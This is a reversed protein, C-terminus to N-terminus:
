FIELDPQSQPAAKPELDEKIFGIVAQIDAYGPTSDGWTAANKEIHPLAGKAKELLSVQKGRITVKRDKVQGADIYGKLETHIAPLEAPNEIQKKATKPDPKDDGRAWLALKEGIDESLQVDKGEFIHRFQEPLKMMMKEGKNDSQWTPRGDAHPLLLMNITMEFVFEDGAIPVFGFNEIETKGNKKVPRSSEKARFCFIFNANMQLLGNILKRRDSKPKQWALMQVRQRKQYDNGALRDMEQEHLDLLGGPGEHEHSASDVIIVSPNKSAAFKLVELYDLSGFPEGFPIHQFSFQDAYHLARNSETDIHIIDGPFVSQIGKALRLASFTKGGGSPGMLGVLLPVAKREAKNIQFQRSM